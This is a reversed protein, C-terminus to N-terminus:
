ANIVLEMVQAVADDLSVESTDIVLDADTPPQYPDDIGTFGSL